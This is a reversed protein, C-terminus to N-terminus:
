VAKQGIEAANFNAVSWAASTNPDSEFMQSFFQYTEGLPIDAGDATTAGSKISPMISRPSADDKRALLNIQVGKVATVQAPLDTMAYTDRQSATRSSVYSTDDDPTSANVAQYNTAAGTLTWNTNSGAGSPLLARVAIDGLFDNNVAGTTDCIYLDGIRVLQASAGFMVQNCFANTVATQITSLSCVTLGNVKVTVTGTAGTAFLIKVEVYNWIDPRLVNNNSAGIFTGGRYVSVRGVCDHGITIGEVGSGIFRMLNASSSPITLGSSVSYIFAGGVVLTTYNAGLTKVCGIYTHTQVPQIANGGNRGTVFTGGGDGFKRFIDAIAYHGGCSELWLLAM